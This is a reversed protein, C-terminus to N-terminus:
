KVGEVNDKVVHTAGNLTIVSFEELDFFTINEFEM